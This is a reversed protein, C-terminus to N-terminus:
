SDESQSTYGFFLEVVKTRALRVARAREELLERSTPFNLISVVRQLEGPHTPMAEMRKGTKGTALFRADRLTASLSWARYLVMYTEEDIIKHEKLASLARLTSTTRLEPVRAGHMMQFLQVTWEVDLMGGPGLKMRDRAPVGGPIREKEVRIKMKRVNIIREGDCIEPYRYPDILEMFRKGLNDDGAVHRAKLLAQFEWTKAWQEYYDRFSHMSRALPGNKGEPRLGADVNLSPEEGLSSLLKLTQQAIEGAYKACQRCNKPCDYVFFLDADSYYGCEKAGFSGMGIVAMPTLSGAECSAVPMQMRAAHYAAIVAIEIGLSLGEHINEVSSLGLTQAMAERMMERRRLYRGAQAISEPTSRRDIMAKLETVLQDRSPPHLHKDDELWAVSEPLEPIAEALYQSTSLIHALRKAVPGGDRLERMYWGTGGMKESLVRFALLGADPDAGEAFWGLMVPILQRAIMATRSTGRTLVDIHLMAGRPDKYGIAELRDQAAEANLSIDEPSLKAAEPLLPRYFTDRHLTRVAHRRRELETVFEGGTGLRMSRALVRLQDEKVPLLPNRRLRGIQLRHEVCRLWRYHSDFEQVVRRSMYGAKGLAELARTTTTVRIREDARGHVLQLLQVTFEVDRLGGRGLKINRADERGLNQEVRARMKRADQVFNPRSAAQWVFPQIAQIYATGLQTNGAVARAKLLAQYEWSAGWKKYYEVHSALTRVLPGAKGEPRLATDVTWLAPENSPASLIKAIEMALLTARDTDESNGVYIVDVDSVYNLEWAGTKGLAIVALDEPPHIPLQRSGRLNADAIALAGELAAGALASLRGCILPMILTPDPANMDYSAIRLVRNFYHARLADRLEITEPATEIAERMLRKEEGQWQELTKEEVVIPAKVEPFEECFVALSEPHQVIHDALARSSGLVALLRQTAQTDFTENCSTRLCEEQPTEQQPNVKVVAEAVHFEAGKGATREPTLTISPNSTEQTPSPFPIRLLERLAQDPYACHAFSHPTVNWALIGPDNFLKESSDIDTFGASRLQPRLTSRGQSGPIGRNPRGPESLRM